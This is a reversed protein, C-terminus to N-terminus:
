GPSRARIADAFRDLAPPCQVFFLSPEILELEMVRPQGAVDPVVDVRAYLLKGPEFGALAAEGVELEEPAIPVAESVDEAKGALRPSKRVAHTFVSDIWILSREGHREVAPMYEQVLVDGAELLQTLHASGDEIAKPGFRRTRYSAASIAPKIVLDAEWGTTRILADLSVREGHQIRCTPVIPVGRRELELLYRKDHNWFIVDLPNLLPAARGAREAWDLFGAPDLYYNWTSRLVILDASWREKPDDWAAYRASIGRRELAALLLRHDPDPEPLERCTALIVRM